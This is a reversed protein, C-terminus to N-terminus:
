EGKKGLTEMMQRVVDYQKDDGTVWGNIGTKERLVKRGEETTTNLNLLIIKMREVVNENLGARAVYADFPIPDTKAIVNIQKLDVIGKNGAAALLGDAIAGGDVEKKYVAEASKDHTGVFVIKGFFTDPNIGKSILMAKPYMYGSASNSDTFAFTKGKLQELTQIGSDKHVIIYGRFSSSGRAIQTAFIKLAPAKKKLEVYSLPAFKGFDVRGAMLEEGLKAYNEAVYLTVKVGMKETLYDMLPKLEKEAEEKAIYPTIGFKLEKIDSPIPPLEKVSITTKTTDPLPTKGTKTDKKKKDCSFSFCLSLALLIFIFNKM